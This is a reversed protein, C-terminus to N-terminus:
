DGSLAGAQELYGDPPVWTDPVHANGWSALALITPRLDEGKPALHYEYRRGSGQRREILGHDELRRLRDSLINTTIREPSREFESFRTKGDLLDRLVLLTWKDGVIDLTSAIPCDSRRVDRVDKASMAQM